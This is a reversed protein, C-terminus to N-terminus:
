SISPPGRLSFNFLTQEFSSAKYFDFYEDTFFPVFSDFTLLISQDATVPVLDCIFCHHELQHLHVNSKETCHFDNCHEYQHVIETATPFLFLLLFFVSLYKKLRLSM